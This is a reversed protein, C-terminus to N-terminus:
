FFLPQSFHQEHKLLFNCGPDSKSWFAISHTSCPFPDKGHRGFLYDVFVRNIDGSKPQFLRFREVLCCGGVVVRAVGGGGVVNIVVIIILALLLVL